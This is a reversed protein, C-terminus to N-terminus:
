VAAEECGWGRRPQSGESSRHEGSDVMVIVRGISDYLVDTVQGGPPPVCWCESYGVAGSEPQEGVDYYYRYTVGLDAEEAAAGIEAATMASADLGALPEGEALPHRGESLDRGDAPTRQCELGSSFDMGCGVAFLSLALLGAPLRV